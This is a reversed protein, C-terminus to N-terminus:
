GQPFIQNGNLSPRGWLRDPHLPSSFIGEGGRGSDDLRTLRTMISLYERSRM